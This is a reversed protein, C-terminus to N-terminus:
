GDRLFKLALTPTLGSTENGPLLFNGESMRLLGLSSGGDYLGSYSHGGLDEWSVKAVVGQSHNIKFRNQPMEDRGGLFSERM